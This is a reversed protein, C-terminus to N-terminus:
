QKRRGSFYRSQYLDTHPEERPQETDSAHEKDDSTEAMDADAAKESKFRKDLEESVVTRLESVEVYVRKDGTDGEAPQEDEEDDEFLAALRERLEEKSLKGAM